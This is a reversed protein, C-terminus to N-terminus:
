EPSEYRGLDVAFAASVQGVTGSVVVTRRAVSTEVVELGNARAFAAVKDLDPQAAGCQAALESRSIFQRKDPPTAAWYDQDPLAPAGPRRRLRISLSLKENADAPGILRAGQAARRESGELRLYGEPINPM